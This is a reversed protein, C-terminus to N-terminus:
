TCFLPAPVIEMGNRRDAAMHLFRSAAIEMVTRWASHQNCRALDYLTVKIERDGTAVFQTLLVQFASCSFIVLLSLPACFLGCCWRIGQILVWLM